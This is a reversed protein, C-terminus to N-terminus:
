QKCADRSCVAEGEKSCTCEICGINYKDGIQYFLDDPGLCQVPQEEAVEPVEVTANDKDEDEARKYWGDNRAERERQRMYAYPSRKGGFGAYPSRKDGFGGAYPSRKGGFGAYPSRKGGFGAYPSRKGGFGAYPSRDDRMFSAYPSRSGRIYSAYPSCEVLSVAASILVTVALFSQM